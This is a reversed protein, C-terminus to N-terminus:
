MGHLRIGHSLPRLRGYLVGGISGFISFWFASALLRIAGVSTAEMALAEGITAGIVWAALLGAPIALVFGVIGKWASSGSAAFRFAIWSALFSCGSRLNYADANSDRENGHLPRISQREDTARALAASLASDSAASRELKQRRM